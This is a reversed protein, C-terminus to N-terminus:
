PISIAASIVEKLIHENNNECVLTNNENLRLISIKRNKVTSSCNSIICIKYNKKSKFKSYENQSLFVSRFNKVIGKVEIFFTEKNKTIELDWGLNQKEVSKVSYGNKKYYDTTYTIAYKETKKRKNENKKREFISYESTDLSLFKIYHKLYTKENKEFHFTDTITKLFFDIEIIDKDFFSFNVRNSFAKLGNVYNIKSSIKLYNLFQEEM